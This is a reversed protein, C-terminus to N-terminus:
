KVIRGLADYTIGDRLILIRGNEIFKVAKGASEIDEINTANNEGEIIFQIRDPAGAPRDTADMYAKYAGLTTGAYLGFVCDGPTSEPSLVYKTSAEVATAVLCGKFYNTVVSVPEEASYAFDYNGAAGSVVVGTNAPIVQGASIPSLTVASNTVASAYYATVGTPVKAPFDLYISAWGASTIALPMSTYTIGVYALYSQGTGQKITYSGAEAGSITYIKVKQYNIDSNDPYTQVSCNAWESLEVFDGEGVSMMITKDANASLPQAITIIATGITTFYTRTASEQKVGKSFSNGHFKCANEQITYKEDTKTFVVSGSQVFSGNLTLYNADPYGSLVNTVSIVCDYTNSAIQYDETNLITVTARVTATGEAETNIATIGSESNVTALSGSQISYAVSYDTGKTGGTVSFTPITAVSGLNFSPAANSWSASLDTKASSEEASATIKTVNFTVASSSPNRYSSGNAGSGITGSNYNIRKYLRITRYTGSTSLVTALSSANANGKLTIMQLNDASTGNYDGEWFLAAIVVNDTSSNNQANISVSTLAYGEDAKIEIYNSNPDTDANASIQVVTTSSTNEFKATTTATASSSCKVNSKTTGGSKVIETPNFDAGWVNGVSCLLGLLILSFLKKTKM